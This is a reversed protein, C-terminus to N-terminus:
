IGALNDYGESVGAAESVPTAGPFLTIAPLHVYLCQSCTSCVYLQVQLRIIYDGKDLKVSYNKAYADGCVLLQKNSDYLM